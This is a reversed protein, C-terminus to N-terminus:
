AAEKEAIAKARTILTERSPNGRVPEGTERKIFEKLEADTCDEITKEKPAEPAPAGSLRQVMEELQALRAAMASEKAGDKATSIYSRAAERLQRGGMGLKGLLADSLNALEEVSLIDLAKLEAVRSKTLEPNPWQDLPTGHAARAEGKKFAAYDAPWRERHKQEVEGVWTLLKDGPIRIEIMEKEDFIPRGEKESKAKNQIADMYFHPRAVDKQEGNSPM